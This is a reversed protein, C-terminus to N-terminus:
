KNDKGFDVDNSKAKGADDSADGRAIGNGAAEPSSAATANRSSGPELAVAAIGYMHPTDSPKGNLGLRGNAGLQVVGPEDVVREWISFQHDVSNGPGNGRKVPYKRKITPWPGLDRGIKEATKRFDSQLWKPPRLKEDYFVYLKAPRGLTVEIQMNTRMKDDCFPKIYDAGVLHAPMGDETLGNWEHEPRDVYALSDEVLGKPVIEYFKKTDESRLNDCVKLIIPNVLHIATESNPQFTAVSGTTISVIRDLEGLRNFTVGEGGVLRQIRPTNLAESKGLHLDVAGDFVVIGTKKGDAVELGFETSLDVVDGDPTEVSFGRGSEETVRVRIRGQNLKARHPTILDVDAPGDVLMYGVKPLAIRASGSDIRINQTGLPLEAARNALSPPSSDALIFWSRFSILLGVAGILVLCLVPTVFSIASWRFLGLGGIRGIASHANGAATTQSVPAVDSRQRVENQVCDATVDSFAQASRHASHSAAWLRLSQTDQALQLFIQRAAESEELLENLERAETETLEQAYSATTLRMLSDIMRDNVDSSLQPNRDRM